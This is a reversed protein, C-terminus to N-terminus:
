EHPASSIGLPQSGPALPEGVASRPSRGRGLGGQQLFPTEVDPTTRSGLGVEEVLPVTITVGLQSGPRVLVVRLEDPKTDGPPSVIRSLTRLAALMDFVALREGGSEKIRTPIDGRAQASLRATVEADSM